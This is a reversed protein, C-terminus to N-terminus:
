VMLVLDQFDVKFGLRLLSSALESEAAPEEDIKALRLCRGKSTSALKVLQDLGAELLDPTAQAAFSTLRRGTRDLYFMLQGAAIIVKAGASRKPKGKCDPWDLLAGYPNAPDVVSLCWAKPTESTQQQDAVARLREVASAQGFQAASLGEVFYGRRIKGMEELAKLSPYFESFGGPLNESSIIERSVFGYRALLSQILAQQSLVAETPTQSQQPLMESVLSWRGAFPPMSKARGKTAQRRAGLGRVASLLDNTVLGSWILDELADELEAAKHANALAGRIDMFFCAGRRTLHDVIALQAPNLQDLAPPIPNLLAFRERRYIAIKGDRNGLPGYGIWVAQGTQFLDDFARLNFKPFRDPLIEKELCSLPLPLGEMKALSEMLSHSGRHWSWLFEAFVQNGVPAVQGRLKALTRQKWRKLFEVECWDLEAKRGAPTPQLHGSEIKRKEELSKLAALTERQALGFRSAVQRETQCRHSRLYRWLLQEICHASSQEFGDLWSRALGSPPQLGLAHCYLAVDEIAVWREQKAIKLTVIKRQRYLEDVIEAVATEGSYRQAIEESSLDGLQRLMDQVDNAHRCQRQPANRQLESELEDGIAQDLLERLDDEGLLERLLNRDVTLALARREALPADGNYLYAATYSFALSRSFPSPSQTEVFDLKIRGDRLERLLGKLAPLDFIDQLCSRYTELMLPFARYQSAVAQLQQARLRQAWLPTRKGPVRKPLLLARGANERFQGAFLASNALQDIILEEVEEPDLILNPFEAQELGDDPWRISIGDDTYHCEVPYGAQQGLSFELALAWPAHIRAGLPSLLCVRWDGFEDRYREVTLRHEGPLCGTERHQEELYSILNKAALRDMRHDSQLQVMAAENELAFIKQYFAGIARGLEVPRGPGDGRWFPLRGPEGPAPTVYVKDRTIESVRWTSSGLCFNQGSRIEHVMEEELEGVRPGGVGLFVGYLGRDPITGGNVSVLSKTGPRATLMDTDRDWDIRAKLDSFETSPYRGALMELCSRLVEDSLDQYAYAGKVLNRLRQLSTPGQAVIAALQQCLVDLPRKPVTIAEIAGLSMQSAVVACEALSSRHKPFIKGISLQGVGHGARGVRQLGRAVSGPSEVLVVLDVAGMDIGLELSSTAVIARLKGSKLGDEIVIREEHAVSGHHAKVLEGPNSEPEIQQQRLLYLENLRLAMRECLGRSNVFVITSHHALILDLIQPYIAPWLSGAGEAAQGHGMGGARRLVDESQMQALFSAQNELETPAANPESMDEVPSVVELDLRPPVLTDVIVVERQSGALYTAVEQPPRVTASLGIRQPPADCLESLRELSLALHAGRKTPALSHVEDVIITSVTRLTERTESGLILFLSEPTTVLIDPPHKRLRSRDASSTDGTRVGVTPLVISLQLREAWVQLGRLPGQLNKEIDYVLAKLPSVYVVKVGPEPTGAKALLQQISYLFAALTKGSGTPALLLVNKGEAILPWGQAQVQTPGDFNAQFWSLAVPGFLKELSAESVHMSPLKDEILGHGRTPGFTLATLKQHDSPKFSM